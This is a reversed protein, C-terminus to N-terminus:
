ESKELYKECFIIFEKRNSNREDILFHIRKFYLVMRLIKLPLEVTLEGDESKYLLYSIPNRNSQRDLDILIPKEQNKKVWVGMENGSSEYVKWCDKNYKTQLHIFGRNSIHYKTDDFEETYGNWEYKDWLEVFDNFDIFLKDLANPIADGYEKRVLDAMSSLYCRIFELMQIRDIDISFNGYSFNSRDINLNM